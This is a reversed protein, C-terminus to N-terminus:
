DLHRRLERSSSRAAACSRRPARRAPRDVRGPSNERILDAKEHVGVRRDPAGVHEDGVELRRLEVSSAAWWRAATSRTPWRSSTVTLSPRRGHRCAAVSPRQAARRRHRRRTTSRGTADVIAKAIGLAIPRLPDDLLQGLEADVADHKRCGRDTTRQSPSRAAPVEVPQRLDRPLRSASDRRTPERLDDSGANAASTSGPRRRTGLGPPRGTVDSRGGITIPGSPPHVRSSSASALSRTASPSATSRTSVAASTATRRFSGGSSCQDVKGFFRLTSRDHDAVM